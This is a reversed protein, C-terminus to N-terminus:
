TQHWFPTGIIPTSPSALDREPMIGAEYAARGALLAHKFATAMRVPDAAQAIIGGRYDGARGTGGGTRRAAPGPQRPADIGGPGGGAGTDGRQPDM